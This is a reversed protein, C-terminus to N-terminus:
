SCRTSMVIPQGGRKKLVKKSDVKARAKILGCGKKNLTLNAMESLPANFAVEGKDDTSGKLRGLWVTAGTIPHQSLNYFAFRLRQESTIPAVPDKAALEAQAGGALAATPIDGAAVLAVLAAVPVITRM